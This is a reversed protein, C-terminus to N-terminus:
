VCKWPKRISRYLHQLNRVTRFPRSRPVQGGDHLNSDCEISSGVNRQRGLPFHDVFFRRAQAFVAGSLMGPLVSCLRVPCLFTRRNRLWVARRHLVLVLLSFIRPCPRFSRVLVRLHRWISPHTAGGRPIVFRVLSVPRRMVGVHLSVCRGIGYEASRGNPHYFNRLFSFSTLIISLIM